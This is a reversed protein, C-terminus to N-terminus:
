EVLHSDLRRDDRHTHKVSNVQDIKTIAQTECYRMFLALKTQYFYLTGKSMNQVKRDLLFCEVWLELNPSTDGLLVSTCQPDTKTAM